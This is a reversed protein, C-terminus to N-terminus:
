ALQKFMGIGGIAYGATEYLTRAPTNYGLVNLTVRDAGLQAAKAEVAALLMRGFGKGRSAEDVRIDYLYAGKGPGSRRQTVNFWAMGLPEGSPGRATFLHHFPTQLGQPLLEAYDKRAFAMVEDMPRQWARATAIAYQDIATELYQEFEEQTMADLQLM